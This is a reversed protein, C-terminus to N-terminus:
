PTFGRPDRSGQAMLAANLSLALLATLAIRARNM